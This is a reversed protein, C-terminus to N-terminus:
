VPILLLLREEDVCATSRAASRHVDDTNRVLARQIHSVSVPVRLETRASASNSRHMGLVESLSSTLLGERAVKICTLM